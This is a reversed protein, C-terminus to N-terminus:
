HTEKLAADLAKALASFYSRDRKGTYYPGMPVVQVEVQWWGSRVEARVKLVPMHRMTEEMGSMSPILNRDTM